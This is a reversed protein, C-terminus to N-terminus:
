LMVQVQKRNCKDEDKLPQANGLISSQPTRVKRGSKEPRYPPRRQLRVVIIKYCDSKIRYGLSM